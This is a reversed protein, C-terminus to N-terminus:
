RPPSGQPLLILVEELRGLDAAPRVTGQRFVADGPDLTALRGVVIGQPFVGGQGSTIVVDGVAVKRARSLYKVRLDGQGHGEVVGIERSDQLIVGVAIRPDSLLLIRASFPTTEIVRGVAGEGTV